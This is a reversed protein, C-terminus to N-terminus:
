RCLDHRKPGTAVGSPANFRADGGDTPSGPSEAPLRRYWTESTIRRIRQADGADAIYITGTAWAVGFPDSFRAQTVAGDRTGSVGDGAVVLAMADWRADLATERLPLTWRWLAFSAGAAIPLLLALVVMLVRRLWRRAPGVAMAGLKAAQISIVGCIRRETWPIAARGAPSQRAAAVGGFGAARTHRAFAVAHGSGGIPRRKQITTAIM